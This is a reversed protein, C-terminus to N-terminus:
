LSLKISQPSEPVGRESYRTYAFRKKKEIHKLNKLITNMEKEVLEKVEIYEELKLRQM